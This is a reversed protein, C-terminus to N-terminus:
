KHIKSHELLLNSLKKELVAIRKEHDQVTKVLENLLDQIERIIKNQEDIKSFIAINQDAVMERVVDCIITAHKDYTESIYQQTVEDNRDFLRKLFQQDEVSFTIGEKTKESLPINDYNSM